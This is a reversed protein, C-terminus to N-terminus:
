TLIRVSCVKHMPKHGIFTKKKKKKKQVYYQRWSSFYRLNLSICYVSYLM